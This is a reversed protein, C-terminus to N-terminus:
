VSPSSPTNKSSSYPAHVECLLLQARESRQRSCVVCLQGDVITPTPQVFAGAVAVQLESLPALVCGAGEHHGSRNALSHQTDTTVM